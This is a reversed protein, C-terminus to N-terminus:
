SRRLNALSFTEEPVDRTFDIELYRLVTKRGRKDESLPTLTMVTPLLRGGMIKIESFELRRVKRGKEDYFDQWLPLLRALDFGTEVRSWTVPAGPRPTYVLSFTGPSLTDGYAVEYDEEWSADRVLDDNTFDSGMWSAMMLSPPIRITKDIKPLYNWMEAGRKLSSVGKEKIPSAIRVLTYDLGLTWGEMVLSREFDPTVIDMQMRSWSADARYLEDLRRSMERPDPHLRQEGASSACPPGAGM